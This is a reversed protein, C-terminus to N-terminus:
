WFQKRIIDSFSAFKTKMMMAEEAQQPNVWGNYSKNKAMSWSRPHAPNVSSWNAVSSWDLINHRWRQKPKGRSRKGELVGKLVYNLCALGNLM